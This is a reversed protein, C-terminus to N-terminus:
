YTYILNLLGFILRILRFMVVTLSKYFLCIQKIELRIAIQEKINKFWDSLLFKPQDIKKDRGPKQAFIPRFRM